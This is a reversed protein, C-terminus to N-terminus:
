QAPNQFLGTQEAYHRWIKSLYPRDKRWPKERGTYHLFVTHYKRDYLEEESYQTTRSMLLNYKLPLLLIRNECVVNIVDQDPYGFQERRSVEIWKEYIKEKRIQALNMILFGSNIYSKINKIRSRDLVGAILNDKLDIDAAETLDNCFVGDVDAYIIEDMDPLLKPLMLRNYIAPAWNGTYSDYFDNNADLFTLSSGSNKIFDRLMNKDATSVNKDVVCYINYDCRDKSADLLSTIVVAAHRVMNKDFCFAINIPHLKKLPLRKRAYEVNPTFIYQKIRTKYPVFHLIINLIFKSINRFFRRYSM